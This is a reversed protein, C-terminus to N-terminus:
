GDGSVKYDEESKLFTYDFPKEGDRDLIVSIVYGETSFGKGFISLGVGGLDDAVATVKSIITVPKYKNLRFLVSEAEGMNGAVDIAAASFAWLGNDLNQYSYQAQQTLVRRSLAEVLYIEEGPEAESDSSLKDLRFNYGSISDEGAPTWEITLDNSLLYGEENEELATFSVRSPPVTDRVYRITSPASWNDAFDKAAIHFYWAGDEDAVETTSTDRAALKLRQDLVPTKERTWAFSYGVIGSPDDPQSWRFSAESFQSPRGATFNGAVLRPSDVHQDLSVSFLRSQGKYQNEWYLSFLDGTKVVWPFISSGSLKRSIDSDRWRTQDKEAVIIHNDGRRNDFWTLYTVGRYQFVQPFLCTNRGDSVQQFPGFPNGFSDTDPKEFFEGDENLEVYYIQNPEGQFSREWALFLHDEMALLFPRLNEFQAFPVTQGEREAQYSTIPVPEDNTRFKGEEDSIKLFIQNPYARSGDQSQYAVYERGNFITYHPLFNSVLRKEEVLATLKPRLSSKKFDSPKLFEYYINQAEVIKSRQVVFLIIGRDYGRTFLKPSIMTTSAKYISESYTEGEDETYFLTLQDAATAVAFYISGDEDVTMSFIPTEFAEVATIEENMFPGAFRVAKTWNEMDRSTRLSLYIGVDTFEQWAVAALGGGSAAQPFRIGRTELLEPNDWYLDQAGAGILPFFVVLIIPFYNKLLRM